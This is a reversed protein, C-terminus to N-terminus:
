ADDEECGLRVVNTVEPVYHMVCNQIMFRMTITSSPCDICAGSLPITLVGSEHCFSEFHVDGGDAQVTPAVRETLVQIIEAELELEAASSTGPAASSTGPAPVSDAERYITAPNTTSDHSSLAPL